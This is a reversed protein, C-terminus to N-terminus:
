AAFVPAGAARSRPLRDGGTKTWKLAPNPLVPVAGLSSPSSLHSCESRSAQLESFSCGISSRCHKLHIDLVLAYVRQLISPAALM